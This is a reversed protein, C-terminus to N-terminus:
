RQRQCCQKHCWSDQKRLGFSAPRYRTGQEELEVSLEINLKIKYHRSYLPKTGRRNNCLKHTPQLNSLDYSGGKSKPVQHDWSFAMNKLQDKHRQNVSNIEIPKGCLKCIPRFGYDGMIEFVQKMQKRNLVGNVHETKVLDSLLKKLTKKIDIYFFSACNKEFQADVFVRLLNKIHEKDMTNVLRSAQKLTDKIENNTM